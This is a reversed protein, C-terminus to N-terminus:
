KLAAVKNRKEEPLGLGDRERGLILKNVYRQQEANLKNWEGNEKAFERYEVLAQYVDLRMSSKIGWADLKEEVAIAKDRLDKNTSM